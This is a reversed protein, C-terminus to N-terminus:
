TSELTCPVLSKKATLSVDYVYGAREDAPTGTKTTTSVVPYPREKSGILYCRGSATVAFFALHRHVPIDDSTIITLRTKEVKSNNDYETVAECVAEGDLCIDTLQEAKITVPCGCLGKYSVFDPLSDCELYAVRVLGPLSQKM